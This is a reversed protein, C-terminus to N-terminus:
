IKKQEYKETKNEQMMISNKGNFSELKILLDRIVDESMSIIRKIEKIVQATSTKFVLMTYHGKKNKKIEYALSRLGWYEEKLVEGGNEKIAHLIKDKIKKIESNAIDQRLIFTLEYLSM